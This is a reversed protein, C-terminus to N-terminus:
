HREEPPPAEGADTYTVRYETPEDDLAEGLSVKLKMLEIQRQHEREREQERLEYERQKEKMRLRHQIKAQRVKPDKDRELRSLLSECAAQNGLAAGLFLGDYAKFAGESRYRQIADLFLPIELWRHVTQRTVGSKEAAFSVAGRPTRTGKRYGSFALTFAAVRQQDSIDESEVIAPTEAESKRAM